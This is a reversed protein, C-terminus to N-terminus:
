QIEASVISHQICISSHIPNSQGRGQVADVPWWGPMAPYPIISPHAAHWHPGGAIRGM